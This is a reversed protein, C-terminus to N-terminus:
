TWRDGCTRSRCTRSAHRVDVRRRQQGVHRDASSAIAANPSASWRNPIPSTPWSTSPEAVKGRSHREVARELDRENRAALVVRAGRQAAMDPPSSVSAARLAPSSSSRNTSAAPASDEHDDRFRRRNMEVSEVLGTVRETWGASLRSQRPSASSTCRARRHLVEWKSRGDEERWFRLTAKAGGVRLDRLILEPMWTPLAPDVLLTNLAGIPVLGLMTQVALPFATANWLQPTNARPYAGPVPREGRAYGGVCEPIRFEPYLQALDFLAQTLDLARADFGIGACDSSRRRRSSRGSPAAITASRTTSPMSRRSRGSAGAVSCTPRSCVDSSAGASARPRRHRLRPLPRREVHGRAVQRKDPDLALAVFQEDEIWWDRNFREKLAAASARHAAADERADMVWSLLAMLEQAVYWYGQLECTAIPAPVPKGDDYVIADGSDKWGQNKTGKSSRTQYELYGDGIWTATTARGTSFAGRPTGTVRSSSCPRRDVGVPEGALDRVDAPQRLRRLLRLVSEPESDGATRDPGPLSHTRATRRALRRRSQEAPSRAQDVGGLAVPWSGAYGAQWGPPSPTAASSRRISRCAQRCRSGNTRLAM